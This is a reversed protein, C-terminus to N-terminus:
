GRRQKKGTRVIIRVALFLVLMLLCAGFGYFTWVICAEALICLVASQWKGRLCMCFTYPLLIGARVATGRYGCHLLQFGDMVTMYDGVWLILSVALLFCYRGMRDQAFLQRGLRSFACYAALLVAAPVLRGVVLAPSAGFLRCLAAYLTPLSLIEIRLPVGATYPAGTLPNIRYIGDFALFSQVTELTLDGKWSIGRGTIVFVAQLLVSIGFIVLVARQAGNLKEGTMLRNGAKNKARARCYLFVGGALIVACSFLILGGWLFAAETLTRGLFLAALHVVELFGIEVCIGHLLADGWSFAGGINERYLIKIAGSGLLFPVAALWICLLILM